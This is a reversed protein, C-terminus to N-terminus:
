LKLKVEKADKCRLTEPLVLAINKELAAIM